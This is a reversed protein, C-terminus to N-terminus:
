KGSRKLVVDEFIKTWKESEDLSRIPDTQLIKVNRLPSPARTNAPV